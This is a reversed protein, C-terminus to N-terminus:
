LLALIDHATNAMKAHWIQYYVQYEILRHVARQFEPDAAMGAVDFATIEGPLFM